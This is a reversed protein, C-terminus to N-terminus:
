PADVLFDDNVTMAGIGETAPLDFAGITASAPSIMEQVTISMAGRQATQANMDACSFKGFLLPWVIAGADVDEAPAQDLTFQTQSAAAVIQRVDFAETRNSFLFFVYDGVSWKWAASTFEIAESDCDTALVSGRGWFPMSALGSKKAARIRDDLRNQNAITWPTILATLSQRPQERVSTRSEHETVAPVVFNQWARQWKPKTSWNAPHPFLVHNNILQVM